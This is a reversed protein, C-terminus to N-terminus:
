ALVKYQNQRQNVTHIMESLGGSLAGSFYHYLSIQGVAPSKPAPSIRNAQFFIFAAAIVLVMCAGAILITKKM